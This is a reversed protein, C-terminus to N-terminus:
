RVLRLTTRTVPNRLKEARAHAAVGRQRLLAAFEQLAEDSESARMEPHRDLVPGLIDWITRAATAEPDAHMAVEYALQLEGVLGAKIEVHDFSLAIVAGLEDDSMGPLLAARTRRAIAIVKGPKIARGHQLSVIATVIARQVSPLRNDDNSAPIATMM